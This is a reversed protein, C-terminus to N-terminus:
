LSFYMDFGKEIFNELLLYHLTNEQKYKKVM